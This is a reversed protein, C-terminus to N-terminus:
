TGSTTGDEDYAASGALPHAGLRVLAREETIWEILKVAVKEVPLSSTDIVRVRWRPDGAEWGSWRSWHMEAKTGEHRIVDTRWTPNAAHGRMWAAWNLYDQLDEATRAFWEPGRARLRTIRTADDCDILCASIAELQPASPAALLEGFPTQGALLLDTGEAQYELARRLWQEDARHRWATDAGPPVGIEDFDHVALDAIRGRLEDLVFTKGAASSGFLLFLV